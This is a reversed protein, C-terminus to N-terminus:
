PLGIQTLLLPQDCQNQAAVRAQEVVQNPGILAANVNHSQRKQMIFAIRFVCGLLREELGEAIQGAKAAVCLKASPQNADGQILRTAADSPLARELYLREINGGVLGAM